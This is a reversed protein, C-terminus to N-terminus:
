RNIFICFISGPPDNSRLGEHSPVFKWQNNWAVRVIWNIRCANRAKAKGHSQAENIAMRNDTQLGVRRLLQTCHLRNLFLLGELPSRELECSKWQRM